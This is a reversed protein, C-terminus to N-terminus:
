RLSKLKFKKSYEYCNICLYVQNFRRAHKECVPIMCNNCFGVAVNDCGSLVCKKEKIDGM